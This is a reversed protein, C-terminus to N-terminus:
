KQVQGKVEGKINEVAKTVNENVPGIDFFADVLASTMAVSILDVPFSSWCSLYSHVILYILNSKPYPIPYPLFSIKM